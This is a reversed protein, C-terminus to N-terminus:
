RFNKASLRQFMVPYKERARAIVESKVDYDVNTDAGRQIVRGYYYIGAQSIPLSKSDPFTLDASYGPRAPVSLCKLRFEKGVEAYIGFIEKTPSSPLILTSSNIMSTSTELDLDILVVAWKQEDEFMDRPHVSVPPAGVCASLVACLIALAFAKM